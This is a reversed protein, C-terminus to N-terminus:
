SQVGPGSLSANIKKDMEELVVLWQYELQAHQLRQQQLSAVIEQRTPPGATGTGVAVEGGGVSGDGGPTASSCADGINQTALFDVVIMFPNIPDSSGKATACTAPAPQGDAEPNEASDRKKGKHAFGPIEVALLDQERDLIDVRCHTLQQTIRQVQSSRWMCQHVRWPHHRCERM